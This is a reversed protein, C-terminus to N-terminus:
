CCGLIDWLQPSRLKVLAEMFYHDGYIISEDVGSSRPYDVTGHMLLGPKDPHDFDICTDILGHVMREGAQTYAQEGTRRGLELLGSAAIAGAASDIPEDADNRDFDWPPITKKGLQTLFYDATKRATAMMEESELVVGMRTFGYLTWAQGRTWCSNDHAGQHTGRHTIEGTEPDHDVVHYTAGDPRIHQERITKATQVAIDHMRSDGTENAAWCVIPLNMVTDVIALALYQQGESPDWAPIYRGEPVFRSALSRGASIALSRLQEDAQINHGRVCSPEFLFGMDHTSRDTARPALRMAWSRATKLIAPDERVAGALWLMGVFFGGTWRAHESILWDGDKTVHPFASLRGADSLCKAIGLDLARDLNSNNGETPKTTMGEERESEHHIRNDTDSM